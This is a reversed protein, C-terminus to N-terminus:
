APVATPTVVAIVQKSGPLVGFLLRLVQCLAIGTLDGAEATSQLGRKNERLTMTVMTARTCSITNTPTLLTKWGRRLGFSFTTLRWQKVTCRFLGTPPCDPSPSRRVESAGRLLLGCGPLPSGPGSRGGGLVGSPAISRPLVRPPARVVHFPGVLAWHRSRALACAVGGLPSPSCLGRSRSRVCVCLARPSYWFPLRVSSASRVSRTSHRVLSRPYPVGPCSPGGCAARSVRPPIPSVPSVCCWTGARAGRVLRSRRACVSPASCGGLCYHRM